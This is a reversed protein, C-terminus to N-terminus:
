DKGTGVAYWDIKRTLYMVLALVFLIGLSGMLLSTQEAKVLIFIFGYLLSFVMAVYLGRKKEHLVVSCYSSILVVIATTAILFSLNFSLYESMSLLLLYFTSLSFGILLYQFPHLRVKFFLETLFFGAFTLVIILFSYKVSRVNVQYTNAPILIEVGFKQEQQQVFHRTTPSLVKLQNIQWNAKFGEADITRVDPLYDGIFSPSSWNSQMNVQTQQALPLIQLQKSGAIAVKIEYHLSSVDHKDELQIAFGNYNSIQHQQPLRQLLEDNIRISEIKKLGKIHKLPIFLYRGTLKGSEQKSSNTKITGTIKVKSVFVAAQYIGLYRKQAQLSIDITSAQSHFVRDINIAKDQMIKQYKLQLIPTGISQEAGWRKAIKRQAQHEMDQREYILSKISSLPIQMLLILFFVITLKLSISSALKEKINETMM